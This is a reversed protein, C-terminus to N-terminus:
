KKILQMMQSYKKEMMKGEEAELCPHNIFRFNNYPIQIRDKLEQAWRLAGAVHPMNKNIPYYELHPNHIWIFEVLHNKYKEGDENKGALNQRDYIIKADDLEKHYMALLVPYKSSIDKSIVPRTLLAGFMSLLKFCSETSPCDDFSQTAISGLRRDM